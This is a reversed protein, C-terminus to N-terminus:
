KKFDEIVHIVEWNERTSVFPRISGSMVDGDAKDIAIWWERPQPKIRVEWSDGGDFLVRQTGDWPCWAVSPNILGRSVLRQELARGEIIADLVGTEKLRKIISSLQM